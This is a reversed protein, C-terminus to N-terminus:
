TRQHLIQCQLRLYVQLPSSLTPGFPFAGLFYDSTNKNQLQIPNPFLLCKSVNLIYLTRKKFIYDTTNLSNEFRCQGSYTCQATKSDELDGSILKVNNAELVLGRWPVNVNIYFSTMFLLGFLHTKFIGKRKGKLCTVSVVPLFLNM